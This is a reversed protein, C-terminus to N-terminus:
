FVAKVGLSVTQADYDLNFTNSDRANFKYEAFFSIYENPLFYEVGLGTQWVYDRRTTSDGNVTSIRSYENYDLIERTQFFFRERLQQKWIFEMRNRTYFSQNDFTSEYPTRGGRVMLYSKDSLDYQLAGRAIFGSFDPRTDDNYVRWQGGLWLQYTTKTGLAGRIGGAWQDADGDRDGFTELEYNIFLHAYEALIQTNPGLDYGVRQYVTFIDHDFVDNDNNQYHIYFNDLETELFFVAFPVELVGDFQYEKRLVRDTFETDSRSVTHKFSDRLNVSFPVFNLDLGGQLTQDAHSESDNTSFREVEAMYGLSALHQGGNLPMEANAGADIRHIVDDKHGSDSYFINSEYNVSYEALPKIHISGLQMGKGYEYFPQPTGEYSESSKTGKNQMFKGDSQPVVSDAHAASASFGCLFAVLVSFSFSKLTIRNKM